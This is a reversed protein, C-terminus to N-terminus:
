SGVPGPALTAAGAKTRGYGAFALGAFGFLIMAWTSPEPVLYVESYGVVQGADNIGLAESVASGQLGGLNIVSGESWETAYFVNSNDLSYYTYGVAQGPINISLPLSGMSGPLDGLGTSNGDSWETAGLDSAGVIQGSNNIASAVSNAGLDIVGSLTWEVAHAIGAVESNGVVQGSDNIGFAQSSTSGPLGGLNIVSGGSWETAVDDSGNASYSIGVVQGAANIGYAQSNPFGPLVGLIIAGGGSWETALFADSFVSVGVVQGANNIGFARSETSGGLNIIKGSSWETASIQANSFSTGVAQGANNLSVAESSTYGPLSGLNIIGGGGWETACTITQFLPGCQAQASHTTEGLLGAAAFISLSFSKLHSM